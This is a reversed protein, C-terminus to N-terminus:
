AALLHSSVGPDRQPFDIVVALRPEPQDAEPQGVVSLLPARNLEVDLLEELAAVARELRAALEISDPDPDPPTGTM